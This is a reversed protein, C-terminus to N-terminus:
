LSDTLYYVVLLHRVELYLDATYELVERMVTGDPVVHDYGHGAKYCGRCFVPESVVTVSSIYSQCFASIWIHESGCDSQHLLFVIRRLHLLHRLSGIKVNMEEKGRQLTFM